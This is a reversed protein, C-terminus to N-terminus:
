IWIGKDAQTHTQILKTPESQPYSNLDRWGDAQSNTSYCVAHNQEEHRTNSIRELNDEHTQTLKADDLIILKTPDFVKLSVWVM